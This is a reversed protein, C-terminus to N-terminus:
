QYNRAGFIGTGVRILTAGARVAPVFDHTMGMSLEKMSVGAINQADIAEALKKLRSFLQFNEEDGMGSVSITMLGRIRVHKLKSIQRCLEEAMDPAVGSKSEEGSINVQIL